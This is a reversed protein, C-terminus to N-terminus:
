FELPLVVLCLFAAILFVFIVHLVLFFTALWLVRFPFISCCEINGDPRRKYVYREMQFDCNKTGLHVNAALMLQIDLEKQTLEAAMTTSADSRLPAQIKREAGKVM